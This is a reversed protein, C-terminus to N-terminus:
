SLWCGIVSREDGGGEFPNRQGQKLYGADQLLGKRGELKLHVGKAKNLIVLM